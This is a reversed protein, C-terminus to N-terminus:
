DVHRRAAQEQARAPDDLWQEIVDAADAVVIDMETREDKGFRKLVYDAPDMRGPPRGVGLKLRAFDRTGLSRELSRIGNHGGSGGGVQLRLRAFGLDIDDHVVLLDTPAQAKYYALLSAVPGGAENMYSLPGALVVRHEGIRGEALECRVRLPGRSFRLGHRRGAEAIVEVGVNHRTGDYESGPNRLGVVVKPTM